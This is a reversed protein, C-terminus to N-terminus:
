QLPPKSYERVQQKTGSGQLTWHPVQKLVAVLHQNGALNASLWSIAHATAPSLAM